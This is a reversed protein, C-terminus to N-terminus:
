RCTVNTSRVDAIEWFRSKFSTFGGDAWRIVSGPVVFVVERDVKGGFVVIDGAKLVQPDLM